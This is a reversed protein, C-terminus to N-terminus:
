LLYPRWYGPLLQSLVPFKGAITIASGQPIQYRLASESIPSLNHNTNIM